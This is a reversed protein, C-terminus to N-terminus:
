TTLEAHSTINTHHNLVSLLITLKTCFFTFSICMLYKLIKIYVDDMKKIGDMGLTQIM